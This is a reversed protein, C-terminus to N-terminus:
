CLTVVSILFNDNVDFEEYGLVQAWILSIQKELVTFEGDSRGTLLVEKLSEAAIGPLPEAKVPRIGSSTGRIVDPALRIKMMPAWEALVHPDFKGIVVQDMRSSLGIRLAALADGPPMYGMCGPDTLGEWAYWNVALTNKGRANRSASFADLFANAAAYDAGGVGGWLSAVSSYVVFFDLPDQALLSDLM